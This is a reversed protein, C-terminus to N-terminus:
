VSMLSRCGACGADFWVTGARERGVDGFDLCDVPLMADGAAEVM